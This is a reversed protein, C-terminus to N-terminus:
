GLSVKETRPRRSEYPFEMIFRAGKGAPSEVRLSGGYKEMISQCIFLGMGNGIGAPKSSYFPEFIRDINKEAIGPGSDEVEFVVFGVGRKDSVRARFVITGPQGTGAIAHMANQLLNLLIQRLDDPDASFAPLNRALQKEVQINKELLDKELLEMIDDLEAELNVNEQEGTPKHALGLLSRVIKMIRDVEKKILGGYSEWAPEGRHERLVIQNKVHINNLPNLIEHCVASLLTGISAMKASSEMQTRIVDVDEELKMFHTSDRLTVLFLKKDELEILVSRLEVQKNRGGAPLTLQIPRETTLPFGLPQGLLAGSPKGFLAEAAPNCFVVIGDQDVLLMGDPNLEIIKRFDSLPM